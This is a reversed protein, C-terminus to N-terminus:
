IDVRRLEAELYRRKLLQFVPLKSFVRKGPHPAPNFPLAGGGGGMYM